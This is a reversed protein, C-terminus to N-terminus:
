YKTEPSIIANVNKKWKKGKLLQCPNYMTNKDDDVAVSKTGKIEIVVFLKHFYFPSLVQPKCCHTKKKVQSKIMFNPACGRGM